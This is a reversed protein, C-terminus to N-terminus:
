RKNFCFVSNLLVWCALAVLSLTVHPIPGSSRACFMLSQLNRWILLNWPRTTCTLVITFPHICVQFPCHEPLSFRWIFATLKLNWYARCVGWFMWCKFNWDLPILFPDECKWDFSMYLFFTFNDFQLISIWSDFAAATQQLRRLRAM